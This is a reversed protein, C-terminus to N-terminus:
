GVPQLLALVRRLPVFAVKAECDNAGYTIVLNDDQLALGGAFQITECLGAHAITTSAICFLSSARSVSFRQSSAEGVRRGRNTVITHFFLTYRTNGRTVRGIGLLEGSHPEPLRIYPSGGHVGFTTHLADNRPKSAHFTDMALVPVESVQTCKGSIPDVRLVTLPEITFVVYLQDGAAFPCWNKQHVQALDGSDFFADVGVRRM